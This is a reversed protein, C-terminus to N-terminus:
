GEAAKKAKYATKVAKGVPGNLTNHIDNLTKGTSLIKKIHKHGTDFKNPKKSNLDRYQQELNMRTNVEQLHNNSLAKLGHQKIVAKHQEVRAHDESVHSSSDSSGSKRVGWKMGKVGHHAIINGVLM